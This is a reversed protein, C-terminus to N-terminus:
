SYDFWVGERSFRHGKGLDTPCPFANNGCIASLFRARQIRGDRYQPDAYQIFEFFVNESLGVEIQNHEVKTKLFDRVEAAPTGSAARYMQSYDSTDLHLRIPRMM